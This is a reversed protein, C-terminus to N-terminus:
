TQKGDYKNVRAKRERKTLDIASQVGKAHSIRGARKHHETLSKLLVLLHEIDARAPTQVGSM